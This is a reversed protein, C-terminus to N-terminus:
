RYAPGSVPWPCATDEQSQSQRGTLFDASFAEALLSQQQVYYDASGALMVGQVKWPLDLLAIGIALGARLRRVMELLYTTIMIM